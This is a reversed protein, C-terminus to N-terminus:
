AVFGSIEVIRTSQSLTQALASVAPAFMRLAREHQLDIIKRTLEHTVNPNGDRDGGVWTGFRLSQTTPSRSIGFSELQDDLAEEVEAVAFDFMDEMYYMINRAEDIPQPRSHRLEDTQLIEEIVEALRRDIRRAESKLLRPNSRENLLEGVRRLKNLISRRAAETPHATYVPRVELREILESIEDASIKADRIRQFAELLWERRAGAVGKFEIRHHQEAVNALHFYSTFARVTRIVHWLQSEELEKFLQGRLEHNPSERLARTSLRVYEVFEYLEEGWLNRLTEGLMDGMRRIDARLDADERDFQSM